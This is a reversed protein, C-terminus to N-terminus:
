EISGTNLDVIYEEGDVLVTATGDGNFIATATFSFEDGGIRTGSVSFSVEGGTIVRTNKDISLDTIIIESQSNFSNQQGEKQLLSYTRNMEGNVIYDSSSLNFGTAMLDGATVGESELRRGDLTGQLNFSYDLDSPFNNTCVLQYDYDIDLTYTLFQGNYSKSITSDFEVGCEQIRGNSSIRGNDADSFLVGADAATTVVESAVSSAVQEAAEENTIDGSVSMEDDNDCAVLAVTITTM